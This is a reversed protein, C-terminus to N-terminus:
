GKSSSNISKSDAKNQEFYISEMQNYSKAEPFALRDRSVLTIEKLKEHQGKLKIVSFQSLFDVATKIPQHCNFWFKHVISEASRRSINCKIM